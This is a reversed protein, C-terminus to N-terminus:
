YMVDFLLKIVDIKGANVALALALNGKKTKSFVDADNNLLSKVLDFCGSQAAIHLPNLGNIDPINVDSGYSILAEAINATELSIALLLPTAGDKARHNIDVNYNEIIERLRKIDGSFVVAHLINEGEDNTLNINANNQLFFSYSNSGKDSISYLLLTDNNEDEFRENISYLHKTEQLFDIDNSCIANKLKEKFEM